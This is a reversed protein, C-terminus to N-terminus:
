AAQIVDPLKGQKGSHMNYRHPDYTKNNKYLSHAIVILKRMAAIQATTTHKGSAKLREFFAKIEENHRIAVMASMFLTGRYIRDGAKSIKMKSRVSTGSSREIPDLGSLSVIQARNAGKYRIFLHLLAIAAVDGIGIISKINEFGKQLTDDKQIIKKIQALIEKEKKKLSIIRKKLDSIVYTSGEKATLSELHNLAKVRQKVTFRYYSMLAKIEEIVANYAPVAIQDERAINIAKSLVRADVRDTKNREGVAKAYNRSQKPNIQFAKIQKQNCFRNLLASYCGTPEYVFVVESIEKKYLKKLKAYLGKIGKANNDIEVDLKGRPIHVSISSKSIDLGISYM